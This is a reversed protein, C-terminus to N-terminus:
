VILATAQDVTLARHFLHGQILHCGLRQLEQLQVHTEVGEAIVALRLERALGCVAQIVALDAISRDIRSVFSQDIKVTDIPLECLHSLSSYGVGFDDLSVEVGSSRLQDLKTAATRPDELVATETIEICLNRPDLGTEELARRTDPVIDPHALERASLNVALRLDPQHRCLPLADVFARRRLLDGMPIILGSEEAVDLFAGPLLTTGNKHRWRALAELAVVRSAAVDVIPQFSVFLEENEIGEHLASRLDHRQQVRARMGDDFHVVEVHRERAQAHALDADRLLDVTGQATQAAVAGIRPSLRVALEDTTVPEAFVPRVMEILPDVSTAAPATSLIVFTPGDFRGVIGAGSVADALRRAITRLVADGARHGGRDIAQRFGDIGVFLVLAWEDGRGVLAHDLEDSIGRRNLLGTVPDHTARHRLEAELDDRQREAEVLDSIDAATAVLSGAPHAHADELIAARTRVWREHGRTDVLRYNLGTLSEGAELRALAGEVAAKDGRHVLSLFPLGLLEAGPRLLQRAFQANAYAIAREADLVFIGIPSADTVARFRHESAVLSDALEREATIDRLATIVLARQGSVPISRAHLWQTRTARQIGFIVQQPQGTRIARRGPRDEPALPSGDDRLLVWDSGALPRGIPDPGLGLLEIAARNARLLVGREDQVVIGEAIAEFTGNLLLDLDREM